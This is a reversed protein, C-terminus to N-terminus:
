SVRACLLPARFDDAFHRYFYWGQGYPHRDLFSEQANELADARLRQAALEEAFLKGLERARAKLFAQPNTQWGNLPVPPLAALKEGIAQLTAQMREASASPAQALLMIEPYRFTYWYGVSFVMADEPVHVVAFGSKLIDPVFGLQRMSAAADQQAFHRFRVHLNERADDRLLQRFRTMAEPDADFDEFPEFALM